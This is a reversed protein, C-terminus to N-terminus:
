TAGVRSEPSGVRSEPSQFGRGVRPVYFEKGARPVYFEVGRGRPLLLRVLLWLAALAGVAIVLLLGLGIWVKKM